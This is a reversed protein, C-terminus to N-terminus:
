KRDPDPHQIQECKTRSVRAVQFSGGVRDARAVVLPNTANRSFHVPYHRDPSVVATEHFARPPHAPHEAGPELDDPQIGAALRRMRKIQRLPQLRDPPQAALLLPGWGSM